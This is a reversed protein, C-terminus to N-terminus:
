RSSTPPTLTANVLGAPIGMAASETHAGTNLNLDVLMFAMPSSSKSVAASACVMRSALLTLATAYRLVMSKTKQPSRRCPRTTPRGSTGSRNLSCTDSPMKVRTYPCGRFNWPLTLTLRLDAQRQREQKTEKPFAELTRLCRPAALTGPSPDRWCSSKPARYPVGRGSTMRRRGMTLAIASCTRRGYGPKCRPALRVPVLM